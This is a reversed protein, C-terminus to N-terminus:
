KVEVFYSRLEDTSAGCCGGGVKYKLSLLHDRDQKFMEIKQGPAFKYKIGSPGRVILTSHHVSKLKYVKKRARKTSM